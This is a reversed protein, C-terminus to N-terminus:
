RWPTATASRRLKTRKPFATLTRPQVKNGQGTAEVHNTSNSLCRAAGLAQRNDRSSFCGITAARELKQSTHVGSLLRRTSTVKRPTAVAPSPAGNLRAPAVKLIPRMRCVSPLCPSLFRPSFCPLRRSDKNEETCTTPCRNITSTVGRWPSQEVRPTLFVNSSTEDVKASPAALRSIGHLTKDGSRLHLSDNENRRVSPMRRLLPVEKVSSPNMEKVAPYSVQSGQVSLCNTKEKGSNSLVQAPLNFSFQQRVSRTNHHSSLSSKDPTAHRKFADRSGSRIVAPPSPCKNRNQLRTLQNPHVIYTKLKENWASCFNSNLHTPTSAISFSCGESMNSNVCETSGPMTNAFHCANDANQTSQPGGTVASCRSLAEEAAKAKAACVASNVSIEYLGPTLFPHPFPKQPSVKAPSPSVDEAARGDSHFTDSCNPTVGAPRSFFDAQGKDIAAENEWIVSAARSSLLSNNRGTLGFFDDATGPEITEEPQTPLFNAPLNPAKSLENARILFLLADDASKGEFIMRLAECRQDATAHSIKEIEQETISRQTRLLMAQISAPLRQILQEHEELSGSPRHSEGGLSPPAKRSTLQFM